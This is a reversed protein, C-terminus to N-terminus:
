RRQVKIVMVMAINGFIEARVTEGVLKGAAFRCAFLHDLQQCLGVRIGAESNKTRLADKTGVIFHKNRTQRLHHVM